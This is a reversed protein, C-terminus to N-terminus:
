ADSLASRPANPGVRQKMLRVLDELEAVADDQEPPKRHGGVSGLVLGIMTGSRRDAADQRDAQRGRSSRRAAPSNAPRRRRSSPQSKRRADRARLVSVANELRTALRSKTTLITTSTDTRLFGSSSISITRFLSRSRKKERGSPSNISPSPLNRSRAQTPDSPEAVLIFDRYHRFAM